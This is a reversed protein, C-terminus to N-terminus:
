KERCHIEGQGDQFEVTVSASRAVKALLFPFSMCGEWLTFKGDSKWTIRPNYLLEPWSPMNLAVIRRNIGLQTAATGRGRGNAKRFSLLAAHVKAGDAAAAPDKRTRSLKRRSVSARIM